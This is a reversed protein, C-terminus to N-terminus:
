LDYNIETKTGERLFCDRSISFLFLSIDLGFLYLVLILIYVYTNYIHSTVRPRIETMAAIEGAIPAINKGRLQLM